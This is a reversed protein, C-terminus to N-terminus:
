RLTLSVITWRTQKQMYTLLEMLAAQSQDGPLNVILELRVIASPEPSLLLQSCLAHRLRELQLARPAYGKEWRHITQPSVGVRRAFESPQINQEKRWTQLTQGFLPNPKGPKTTEALALVEASSVTM